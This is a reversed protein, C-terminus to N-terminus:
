CACNGCLLNSDKCLCITGEKKKERYSGDGIATKDELQAETQLWEKRQAESLIRNRRRFKNRAFKSLAILVVGFTLLYMSDISHDYPRFYDRAIFIDTSISTTEFESAM